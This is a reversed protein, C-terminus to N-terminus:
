YGTHTKKGADEMLVMYLLKCVNININIKAM